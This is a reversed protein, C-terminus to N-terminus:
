RTKVLTGETAWVINASLYPPSSSPTFIDEHRLSASFLHQPTQAGTSSSPDHAASFTAPDFEVAVLALGAAM